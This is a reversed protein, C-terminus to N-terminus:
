AFSAPFMGEAFRDPNVDCVTRFQVDGQTLFNRLDRTGQGGLGIAGMAIRESPVAAGDLGLASSPLVM